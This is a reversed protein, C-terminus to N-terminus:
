VLAIGSSEIQELIPAIADLDIADNEEILDIGDLAFGEGRAITKPCNEQGKFEAEGICYSAEIRVQYSNDPYLTLMVQLNSAAENRARLFAEAAEIAKMKDFTKM